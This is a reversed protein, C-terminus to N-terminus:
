AAGPEDPTVSEVRMLQLQRAGHDPNSESMLATCLSVFTHIMADPPVDSSLPLDGASYVRAAILAAAESLALRM